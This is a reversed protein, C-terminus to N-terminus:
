FIPMRIKQIKYCYHTSVPELSLRRQNSGSGAGASARSGSSSPSVIPEGVPSAQSISSPISQLSGITTVTPDSSHSTSGPDKDSRTSGADKESRSTKVTENDGPNGANDLFISTTINYM